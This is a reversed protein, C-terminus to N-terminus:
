RGLKSRITDRLEHTPAWGITEAALRCDLSYHSQDEPDVPVHTVATDPDSGSELAVARAIDILAHGGGGINLVPPPTDAELAMTVATVVDRVDVFDRVAAGRGAVTISDGARAQVVFRNLVGRDSDGPGIVQSLRLAVTSLRPVTAARIAVVREAVWKSLGYYTDPPESCDERAPGELTAPYVLRSSSLVFRSVGADVCADLVREVLVVNPGVFDAFHTTHPEVTQAALHIVGDTGALLEALPVTGESTPTGREDCAVLQDTDPTRRGLTLVDHGAARLQPLLHSGIFGRAGTVAVKM